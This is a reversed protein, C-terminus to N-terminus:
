YLGLNGDKYYKGIREIEAMVRAVAADSEWWCDPGINRGPKDVTGFYQLKEKPYCLASAYMSVRRLMFAKGLFLIQKFASFGGFKEIIEKSFLLNEYANTARNEKIFMEHPMYFKKVACEYLRDCELENGANLLGTAGTLIIRANTGVIGKTYLEHLEKITGEIFENGLVIVLDSPSLEEKESGIFLFESIAKITESPYTMHCRM